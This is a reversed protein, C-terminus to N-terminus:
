KIYTDNESCLYIPLTGHYSYSSFKAEVWHCPAHTINFNNSDEM